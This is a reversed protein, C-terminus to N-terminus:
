QHERKTKSNADTNALGVVLAAEGVGRLRVDRPELKSRMRARSVRHTQKGLTLLDALLLVSEEGSYM